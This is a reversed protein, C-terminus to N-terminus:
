PRGRGCYLSRLPRASSRSGKAERIVRIGEAVSAVPKDANLVNATWGCKEIVAVLHKLQAGPAYSGGVLRQKLLDYVKESATPM